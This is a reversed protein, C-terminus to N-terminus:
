NENEAISVIYGNKNVKWLNNFGLWSKWCRYTSQFNAKIPKSNAKNERWSWDWYDGYTMAKASM